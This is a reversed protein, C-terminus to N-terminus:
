GNRNSNGSDNEVTPWDSRLTDRSGRARISQRLIQIFFWHFHKALLNM